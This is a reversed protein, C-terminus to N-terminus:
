GPTPLKGSGRKSCLVEKFEILRGCVLATQDKKIKKASLDMGGGSRLLDPSTQICRPLFRSRM